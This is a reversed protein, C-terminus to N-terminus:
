MSPKPDGGSSPDMPQMVGSSFAFPQPGGGLSPDLPQMVGSTFVFPQLSGFSLLQVAVGYTVQIVDSALLSGRPPLEACNKEKRM